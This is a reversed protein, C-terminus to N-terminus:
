LMHKWTIGTLQKSNHKYLKDLKMIKTKLHQINGINWSQTNEKSNLKTAKEM